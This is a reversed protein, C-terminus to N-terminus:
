CVFLSSSHRSTSHEGEFIFMPTSWTGAASVAFSLTVHSEVRDETAPKNIGAPVPETPTSGVIGKSNRGTKLRAFGTEDM